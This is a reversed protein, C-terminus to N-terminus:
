AGYLLAVNDFVPFPSKRVGGSPAFATLTTDSQITSEAAEDPGRHSKAPSVSLRPRVQAGGVSAISTLIAGAPTDGDSVDIARLM